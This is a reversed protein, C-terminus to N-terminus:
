RSFSCWWLPRACPCSRRCPESPWIRAPPPYSTTLFGTYWRDDWHDFWSRAYSDGFFMHIFADYTNGHTFPLLGGHFLVTAALAVVLLGLGARLDQTVPQVTGTQDNASLTM